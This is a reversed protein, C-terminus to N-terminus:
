ICECTLIPMGFSAWCCTESSRALGISEGADEALEWPPETVPDAPDGLETEGTDDVDGRM